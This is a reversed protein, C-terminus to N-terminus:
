RVLVSGVYGPQPESSPRPAALLTQGPDELTETAGGLRRGAVGAAEELMGAVQPRSIPCPGDDQGAAWVRVVAPRFAPDPAIVLEPRRGWGEAFCDDGPAASFNEEAAEWLWAGAMQDPAACRQAGLTLDLIAVRPTDTPLLEAVRALPPQQRMLMHHTNWAGGHESRAYLAAVGSTPAESGLSLGLPLLLTVAGQAIALGVLARSGLAGLGLTALIIMHTGLLMWDSLFGHNGVTLVAAPLQLALLLAVFRAKPSGALVRRAGAVGPLLVLLLVGPLIAWWAKGAVAGLVELWRSPGAAIWDAAIFHGVMSLYAALGIGDDHLDGAFLAPSGILGTLVVAVGLRGLRGRDQSGLMVALLGYILIVDPLGIPHTHLRLGQVAGLAIWPAWRSRAEERFLRLALWLALPALAAAHLHPFWKRSMHVVLPLTGVLWMALLALRHEALERAALYTGVLLLLLWPLNSLRLHLRSWGTVGMWAALLAQPLQPHRESHQLLRRKLVDLKDATTHATRISVSDQVAVGAFEPDHDNMPRRDLVAFVVLQAALLALVALLASRDSM